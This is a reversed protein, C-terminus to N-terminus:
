KNVAQLIQQIRHPDSTFRKTEDFLDLSNFAVQKSTFSKEHSLAACHIERFDSKFLNANSEHIGGGPLITLKDAAITQLKKLLPLGNESSSHQGSTLIRKVGIDILQEVSEIPNIVWDFARHFTFPLPKALEVLEKTREFDITFNSNLLGSVIGQCGINKMISIDEKMVEFEEKSYTFDGSRPRILVFVPINLKELVQKALGYSPTIGGLSLESCLEIRHAGAAQAHIASHISNSCIELKM